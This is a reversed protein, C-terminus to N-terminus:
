KEGEKKDPSKKTSWSAGRKKLLFANKKQPKKKKKPNKKKKKQPQPKPPPTRKKKKKKKPPPNRKKKKKKKKTPLYSRKRQPQFNKSESSDTCTPANGKWFPYSGKGKALSLGRRKEKQGM